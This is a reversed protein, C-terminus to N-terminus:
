FVRWKKEEKKPMTQRMKRRRREWIKWESNWTSGSNGKKKEEEELVFMFFSYEQVPLIIFIPLVRVKKKHYINDIGAGWSM